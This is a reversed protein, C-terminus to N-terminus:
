GPCCSSSPRPDARLRRGATPPARRWSRPAGLSGTVPARAPGRSRARPNVVASRIGSGRGVEVLASVELSGREEVSVQAVGVELRTRGSFLLRHISAVALHRAAGGRREARSSESLSGGRRLVGRHSLDVKLHGIQCAGVQGVCIQRLAVHSAGDEVPRLTRERLNIVGVPRIRLQASRPRRSGGEEGRAPRAADVAAGERAIRGQGVDRGWRGPM